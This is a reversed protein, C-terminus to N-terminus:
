NSGNHISYENVEMVLQEVKKMDPHDPLNTNEKDYKFRKDWETIMDFFEQKYTGDENQYKGNRISMLLDLDNERYTIIDEKELIDFSGIIFRRELGNKNNELVFDKLLKLTELAELGKM